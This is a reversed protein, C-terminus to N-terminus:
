AHISEAIEVAKEEGFLLGVLRLGFAVATGAGRSTVLNGDEVVALDEKMDPLEDACSYHATYDKGTLVGADLLVLPAACIAAQPLGSSERARVLALVREDKRLSAVGPGGPLVLLDFERNICGALPTEAKLTMGCKGTVETSDTLSALTVKAGARRLLDIPSVAEIEEFGDTLIVLVTKM